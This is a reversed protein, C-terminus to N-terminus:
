NQIFPVFNNSDLTVFEAGVLFYLSFIIVSLKM